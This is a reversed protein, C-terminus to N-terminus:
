RATALAHSLSEDFIRDFNKNVTEQAIKQLDVRQRYRPAKVVILIPRVTNGRRIWAGKPLHSARGGTYGYAIGTAKDIVPSKKGSPGWSWFIVGAKAVNRKSRKSSTPTSDYGAQKIGLQSLIQVIQGRSMNGYGDLRSARGPVVFEDSTIYNWRELVQELKKRQRGGGYFEHRLIAALNSANKGGITSDKMFVMATLDSKTATKTRLSKMTYPTPRDFVSRFTAYTESEVLKATRTLALATAFPLQQRRVSDLYNLANKADVNVKVDIM